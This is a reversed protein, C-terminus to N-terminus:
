RGQGLGERGGERGGKKRGLTGVGQYFLLYAEAKLVEEVTVLRVTEDSVHAWVGGRRGWASKGELGGEEQPPFPSPPLSPPLPPPPSLRRYVTYHGGEASGHHVIVAQLLYAHSSSPTSPPRSPPLSSLAELAGGEKGEKGSWRAVGERGAGGGEGKGEVRGEWCMLKDDEGGGAKGEEWGGALAVEQSLAGGGYAAFRGVDLLLPYVVRRRVKLM